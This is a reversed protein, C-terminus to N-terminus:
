GVKECDRCFCSRCCGWPVLWQSPPSVEGSQGCAQWQHGYAVLVNTRYAARTAAFAIGALHFAGSAEITMAESVNRGVPSTDAPQHLLRRLRYGVQGSSTGLLVFLTPEFHIDIQIGEDAM